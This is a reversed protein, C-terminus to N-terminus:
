NYVTSKGVQHNRHEKQFSVQSKITEYFGTYLKADYKAIM